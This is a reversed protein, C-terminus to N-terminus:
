ETWFGDLRPLQLKDIGSVNIRALLYLSYTIQQGVYPHDNDVAARLLLARRGRPVAAFPDREESAGGGEFQAFPDPQKRPRSAASPPPTAGAGLVKIKIPQSAHTKGHYELKAPEITADGARKPTISLSTVITRRFSPAGNVFAFSVQESQSRSVLDFDALPPLQLEGPEGKSSYTATIQLTLTGDLAVQDADTSASLEVEGAAWAATAFLLAALAAKGTGSSRVAICRRGSRRRSGGRRCIRRGRGCRTSCGSPRPATSRSRRRSRRRSRKRSSRRSSSSSRTRSKRLLKRRRSRSRRSRSSSNSSSSIRRTRRSRTRRSRSRNSSSRGSRRSSCCSSISRRIRTTPISRWRRRM